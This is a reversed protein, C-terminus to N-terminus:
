NPFILDNYWDILKVVWEVCDNCGEIDGNKIFLYPCEFVVFIVSVIFLACSLLWIIPFGLLWLTRKLYIM